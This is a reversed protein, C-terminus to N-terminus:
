DRAFTTAPTHSTGVSTALWRCACPAPCPMVLLLGHQLKVSDREFAAEGTARRSACLWISTKRFM